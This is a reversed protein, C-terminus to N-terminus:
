IARRAVATAAPCCQGAVPRVVRHNKTPRTSGSVRRARRRSCARTPPPPRPGRRWTAPRGGERGKGARRKRAREKPAHVPSSLSARVRHHHRFARDPMSRWRGAAPPPPPPRQASPRRAFRVSGFRRGRSRRSPPATLFASKPLTRGAVQGGPTVLSRRRLRRRTRSPKGSTEYMKSFSPFLSSPSPPRFSPVVCARGRPRRRM